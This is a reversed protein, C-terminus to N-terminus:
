WPANGLTRSAVVKALANLDNAILDKESAATPWYDKFLEYTARGLLMTDVEAQIFRQQDREIDIDIPSQDGNPMFPMSGDPAAAFGDITIFEQIILKSM